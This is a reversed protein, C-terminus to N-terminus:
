RALRKDPDHVPRGGVVTFAPILGALDDPDATMPDAPYGALDALKGPTISGLRGADGNLAATGLTYLRLADAVGIAHEPGQIGASKTGRTVMGWVNTMPNFPRAIDTGAALDAGAALWEDLPNVRRTREAGWTTLMESGMNWLLAHQVTIGFGGRVARGRLAPDSLLAHEIVLTWPPLPGTEAVVGEYVDLL